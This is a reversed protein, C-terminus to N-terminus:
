IKLFSRIIKQGSEYSKEPHFQVGMINDKIVGTVMESGYFTTCMINEEKVESWHYSHVFYFFDEENVGSLLKGKARRLQNWGMHPIKIKMEASKQMKVVRGEIWGLGNVEGEESHSALLQMGLCIGLFPRQSSLVFYSLEDIWEKSTLQSMAHDFHGVGPLILHDCEHIRNPQDIVVARGGAKEVARAVALVNGTGYKVLGVKM